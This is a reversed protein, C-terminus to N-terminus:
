AALFLIENSNPSTERKSMNSHVNNEVIRFCLPRRQPNVFFISMNNDPYPHHISPPAVRRPFTQKYTPTHTKKQISARQTKANTVLVSPSSTDHAFQPSGRTTLHHNSVHLPMPPPGQTVYTQVYNKKQVCLSLFFCTFCLFSIYSLSRFVCGLACM